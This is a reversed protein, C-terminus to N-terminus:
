KKNKIKKLIWEFVRRFLRVPLSIAVCIKEKLSYDRFFNKLAKRPDGKARGLSLDLTAGSLIDAGKYIRFASLYRPAKTKYFYEFGVCDIHAFRIQDNIDTPSFGYHKSAEGEHDLSNYFVKDTYYFYKYSSLINLFGIQDIIKGKYYFDEYGWGNPVTAMFNKVVEDRRSLATTGMINVGRYFNKFTFDATYIGPREANRSQEKFEGSKPDKINSIVGCGIFAADPYKNFLKIKEEVYNLDLWDDCGLHQVLDGSALEFSRLFNKGLGFNKENLFYRVRADKAAYEKVIQATEDTSADDVVVVEINKYTQKLCFDLARGIFPAGNYVPICISVLPDKNM